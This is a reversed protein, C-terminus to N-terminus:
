PYSLTRCGTGTGLRGGGGGGMRNICTHLSTGYPEVVTAPNFEQDLHHYFQMVFIDTTDDASFATEREESEKRSFFLLM